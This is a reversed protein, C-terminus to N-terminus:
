GDIELSECNDLERMICSHQPRVVNGGSVHLATVTMEAVM